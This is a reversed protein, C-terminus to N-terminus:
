KQSLLDLSENIHKDFEDDSIEGLEHLIAAINIRKEYVQKLNQEYRINEKEFASIDMNFAKMKSLIRQKEIKYVTYSITKNIFMNELNEIRNASLKYLDDKFNKEHLKIKRIENQQRVSRKKLVYRIQVLLLIAIVMLSITILTVNNFDLSM